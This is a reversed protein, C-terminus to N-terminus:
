WWWGKEDQQYLLRFLQVLSAHGWCHCCFALHGIFFLLFLVFMVCVGGWDYHCLYVLLFCCFCANMQVHMPPFFFVGKTYLSSQITRSDGTVYIYLYIYLYLYLYISVCECMCGCVLWFLYTVARYLLTVPSPRSSSGPPPFVFCVCEM